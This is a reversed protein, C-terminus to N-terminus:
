ARSFAIGDTDIVGTGKVGDIEIRQVLLTQQCDSGSQTARVPQVADPIPHAGAASADSSGPSLLLNTILLFDSILSTMLM